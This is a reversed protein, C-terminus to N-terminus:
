REAWGEHEAALRLVEIPVELLGEHTPVEGVDILAQADVVRWGQVLFTVRDTRDTRYLAPSKDVDSAPDKGMFEARM